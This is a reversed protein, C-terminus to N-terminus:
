IIKNTTRRKFFFPIELLEPFNCSDHSHAQQKEVLKLLWRGKPHFFTILTNWINSANCLLPYGIIKSRNKNPANPFSPSVLSVSYYILDLIFMWKRDWYGSEHMNYPIFFSTNVYSSLFVAFIQGYFLACSSALFTKFSCKIIVSDRYWGLGKLTPMEPKKELQWSHLSAVSLSWAHKAQSQKRWQEEM